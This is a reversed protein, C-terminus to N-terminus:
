GKGNLQAVANSMAENANDTVADGLYEDRWEENADDYVTGDPFRATLTDDDLIWENTVNDFTVVYHQLAM